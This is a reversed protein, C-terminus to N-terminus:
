LFEVNELYVKCLRCPCTNCVWPRISWKFNDLSNMQRMQGPLLSWLQPSRYSITELSFYATRKRETEFEQFNRIINCTTNRRKFMFEMIPPALGNKQKSSKLWFLRFTEITTVCTGIKQLMSKFDSTHVNLVVRLARELVKNIMSNSTTSCFM